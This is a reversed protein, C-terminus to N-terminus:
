RRPEANRSSSPALANGKAWAVARAAAERATGQNLLWPRSAYRRVGARVLPDQRLVDRLEEEDAAAMITLAHARDEPSAAPGLPGSAVLVRSRELDQCWSVHDLLLPRREPADWVFDAANHAACVYLPVEANRRWVAAEDEDTM